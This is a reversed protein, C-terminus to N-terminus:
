GSTAATPTPSASSSTPATATPGSHRSNGGDATSWNNVDLVKGVTRSKLRYYGGGSDVFQWQQNAATTAPGSRPGGSRRRHVLQYVDMAKGSNRNVLVYWATTDVTAASAASTNLAAAMGAALVSALLTILARSGGRRRVRGARRPAARLSGTPRAQGTSTMTRRPVLASRLVDSSRTMAHHPRVPTVTVAGGLAQTAYNFIGFRYGMFFQWANNLTLAPGLSTFNTGDTSYSFRAQRGSGPRIDATARLWIRGGTIAASAAETGTGTTNWSGDMTLGNTM